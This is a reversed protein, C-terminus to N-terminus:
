AAAARRDIRRQRWELVHYAWAIPANLVAYSVRLLMSTWGPARRGEDADLMALIGAPRRFRVFGASWAACEAPTRGSHAVLEAAAADDDPQRRLIDLVQTNNARLFKLLGSDTLDSQGFLYPSLLDKGAQEGELKRRGKSLVRPLWVLGAAEESWRRPLWVSTEAGSATM